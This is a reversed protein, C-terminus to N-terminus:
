ASLAEDSRLTSDSWACLVLWFLIQVGPIFSLLCFWGSKGMSQLRKVSMAVLSWVQGLWLVLTAGVAVPGVMVFMSDLAQGRNDLMSGFVQFSFPSSTAIALALFGMSGILWTILTCLFFSDRTMSGKPSFWLGLV